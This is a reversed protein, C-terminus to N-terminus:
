VHSEISIPVFAEFGIAWLWHYYDVCYIISGAEMFFMADVPNEGQWWHRSIVASM